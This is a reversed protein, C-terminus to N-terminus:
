RDSEKERAGADINENEVAGAKGAVFGAGFVQARLRRANKGVHAREFSDLFGSRGFERSHSYM